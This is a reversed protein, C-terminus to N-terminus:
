KIEEIYNNLFSELEEKKYLRYNNLPSRYAKIKGSTTWNRLTNAAIGLFDAAEAVTLYDKVKNYVFPSPKIEM